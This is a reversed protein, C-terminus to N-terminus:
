LYFIFWSTFAKKMNAAGDRLFVHCQEEKIDWEELIRKIALNIQVGTHSGSLERVALIYKVREWEENIGHATLCVPISNVLTLRKERDVELLSAILLELQHDTHKPLSPLEYAEYNGGACNLFLRCLSCENFPMNGTHCEYIVCGISWMDAKHDYECLKVLNAGVEPSMFFLTGAVNCLKGEEALVRSVGFDTLKATVISARSDYNLLINQPKIDRHVIHKEYLAYYGTAISRIVTKLEEAGLRGDVAKWRLHRDLDTHCLEM